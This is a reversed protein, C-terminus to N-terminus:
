EEAQAFFLYGESTGTFEFDRGRVLDGEVLEKGNLNGKGQILYCLFEGTGLFNTGESFLGASILTKSDLTTESKVSGYVPTLEGLKPTIIQYDTAKGQEDPLVWLQLMHNWQDDPNVENHILGKAGARQVQVDKGELISGEGLSGEHRLRGEVMFSIIDIERHPHMRTDGHPQFRADALYVFNGIGKPWAGGRPPGFVSADTILRNERLGAFGGLHTQERKLLEM